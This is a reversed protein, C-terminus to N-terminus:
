SALHLLEEDLLPKEDILSEAYSLPFGREKAVEELTLETEYVREIFGVIRTHHFPVLVRAGPLPAKDGQYAYTFPRDLGYVGHQLLVDLLIM